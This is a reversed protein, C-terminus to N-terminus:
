RGSEPLKPEPLDLSQDICHSLTMLIREMEWSMEHIESLIALDGLIKARVTWPPMLPSQELDRFHEVLVASYGKTQENTSRITSIFTSLISREWKMLKLLASKLLIKQTTELAASKGMGSQQKTFDSM